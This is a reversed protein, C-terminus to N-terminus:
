LDTSSRQVGRIVEVRADDKPAAAVPPPARRVV